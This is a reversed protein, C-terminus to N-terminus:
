DEGEKKLEQHRYCKSNYDYPDSLPPMMMALFINTGSYPVFLHEKHKIKQGFQDNM